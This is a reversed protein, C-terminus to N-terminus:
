VPQAKKEEAHIEFTAEGASVLAVINIPGMNLTPLPSRTTIDALLERVYPVLQAPAHDKAFQELPMHGEGVAEFQGLLTFNLDIPPKRGEAVAGFADFTLSLDLKKKDESFDAGVAFRPGFSIREQAEGKATPAARLRFALQVLHVGKFLIGPQQETDM